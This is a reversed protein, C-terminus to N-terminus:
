QKKLYIPLVTSIDKKLMDLSDYNKILYNALNVSSPRVETYNINSIKNLGYGYFDIKKLKSISDCYQEGISEGDSFEQYFIYDRHSFIALYYNGHINLIDNMYTITNIPIIDKEISLALGKAFSSSVRLGSYSGPGISLVLYDLNSLKLNNRKFLKDVNTALLKTHSSEVLEDIFDVIKNDVCLSISCIDVSTDIALFIM